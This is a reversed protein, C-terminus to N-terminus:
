LGLVRTPTTVITGTAQGAEAEENSGWCWVTGDAKLACATEEAMALDAVDSLVLVPTAQPSTSGNGVQGKSNAGWCYVDGGARACYNDGRIIVDGPPASISQAVTPAGASFSWTFWGSSTKAYAGNDDVAMYNGPGSAGSVSTTVIPTSGYRGHCAISNGGGLGMLCTLNHRAAM